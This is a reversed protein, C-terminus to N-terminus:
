FMTGISYLDHAYSGFQQKAHHELKLLESQHITMQWPSYKKFREKEHVVIVFLVIVHVVKKKRHHQSGVCTM